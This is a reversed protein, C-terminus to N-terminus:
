YHKDGWTQKTTLLTEVSAKQQNSNEYCTKKMSERDTNLNEVYM